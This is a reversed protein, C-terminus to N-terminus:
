FSWYTLWEYDNNPDYDQNVDIFIKIQPIDRYLFGSFVPRRIAWCENLLLRLSTPRINSSHVTWVTEVGNSMKLFLNFTSDVNFPLKFWNLNSEVCKWCAKLVKKCKWCHQVVQEFTGLMQNLLQTSRMNFSINFGNLRAKILPTVM